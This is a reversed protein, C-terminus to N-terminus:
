LGGTRFSGSGVGDQAGRSTAVGPCAKEAFACAHAAEALFPM